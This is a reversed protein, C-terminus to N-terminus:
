AKRDNDNVTSNFLHVCLWRRSGKAVQYAVLLVLLLMCTAGLPTRGDSVSGLVFVGAAGCVLFILCVLLMVICRQFRSLREQATDPSTSFPRRM